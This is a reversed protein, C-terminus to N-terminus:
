IEHPRLLSQKQKLGLKEGEKLMFNYAAEFRNEIEGELIAARIANKILGVERGPKLDFVKIIDDGTVPPQWNRMRDKEEVEKLKQEVVGFNDKYKKIKYENKTTIDARCLMMLSDIDEGADFLLRRVASDTVVEQALVIPRLHLKVMKEVFKMKENLPLKFHRFIHKVMRAGKDEHGHFTWGHGEEFRKTLPKAIDHLIAAWRLWLDDSEKCLNDLVELTHYFNDKHGKGNVYEVGQLACFQPFILQLLGRDFLMKFGTSPKQTLIIKNLEDTIREMSVIQIRDKNKHIAKLAKEDIHFNLQCAFRIARMMRLPDDSFTEDPNL